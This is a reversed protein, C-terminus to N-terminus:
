SSLINAPTIEEALSALLLSALGNRCDVSISRIIGENIFHNLLEFGADTFLVLYAGAVTHRM